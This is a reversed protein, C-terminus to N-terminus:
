WKRLNWVDFEQQNEAVAETIGIVVGAVSAVAYFPKTTLLGVEAVCYVIDNGAPRLTPGSDLVPGAKDSITIRNNAHAHFIIRTRFPDAGIIQAATTGVTVFYTNGLKV